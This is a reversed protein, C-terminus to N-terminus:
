LQVTHRIPRGFVPRYRVWGKCRSSRKSLIPGLDLGVPLSKMFLRSYHIRVVITQTPEITNTEINQM